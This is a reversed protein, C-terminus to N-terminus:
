PGDRATQRHSYLTPLRHSTDRSWLCGSGQPVCVHINKHAVQSKGGRLLVKALEELRIPRDVRDPNHGVAVGAARSTKAEDLHWVAARCLVRNGTQIARGQSPTGERDVFGPRPFRAALRALGAPLWGRAEGLWEIPGVAVPVDHTDRLACIPLTPSVKVRLLQTHRCTRLPAHGGLFALRKPQRNEGGAM